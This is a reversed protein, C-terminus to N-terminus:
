TAGEFVKGPFGRVQDDVENPVNEIKWSVTPLLAALNGTVVFCSCMKRWSEIVNKLVNKLGEYVAEQNM